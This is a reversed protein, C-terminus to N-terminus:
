RGLAERMLQRGVTEVGDESPRTELSQKVEATTWAWITKLDKGELNQMRLYRRVALVQLHQASSLPAVKGIKQMAENVLPAASPRLQTNVVTALYWGLKGDPM